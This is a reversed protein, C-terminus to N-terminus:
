SQAPLHWNRLDLAKGNSCVVIEILADQSFIFVKLKLSSNIKANLHRGGHFFKQCFINTSFLYILYLVIFLEATLINNSTM